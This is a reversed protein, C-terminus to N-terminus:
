RVITRARVRELGLDVRELGQEVLRASRGLTRTRRRGDQVSERIPDVLARNHLSARVGLHTTPGAIALFVEIRAGDGGRGAAANQRRCEALVRDLGHGAGLGTGEHDRRRRGQLPLREAERLLFTLRVQANRPPARCIVNLPLRSSDLRRRQKNTDGARQNQKRQCALGHRTRQRSPDQPHHM